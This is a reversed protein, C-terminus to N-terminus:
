LAPCTGSSSGLDNCSAYDEILSGDLLINIGGSGTHQVELVANSAGSYTVRGATPCPNNGATPIEITEPTAVQIWGNFCHSKIYGTQTMMAIGNGNVLQLRYDKFSVKDTSSKQTVTGTMTVDSDQGTTKFVGSTLNMNVASSDVSFNTLTTTSTQGSSVFVMKGSTTSDGEKCSNFTITVESASGSIDMSGGNGCQQSISIKSQIIKAMSSGQGSQNRVENVTAMVTDLITPNLVASSGTPLGGVTSKSANTVSSAGTMVKTVNEANSSTITQKQTLDFSETSTQNNPTDNSSSSSGGGCGVLSVALFSSVVSALFQKKM